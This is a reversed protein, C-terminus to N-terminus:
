QTLISTKKIHYKSQPDEGALIINETPTLQTTVQIEEILDMKTFSIQDIQKTPQM